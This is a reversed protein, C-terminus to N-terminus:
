ERSPNAPHFTVSRVSVSKGDQAMRADGAIFRGLGPIDLPEDGAEEIRRLIHAFVVSLLAAARPEPMKGAHEPSAERAAKVIEKLHM